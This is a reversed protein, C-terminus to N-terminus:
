RTFHCSRDFTLLTTTCTMFSTGTTYRALHDLLTDNDDVEVSQQTSPEDTTKYEKARDIARELIPQLYDDVVKM